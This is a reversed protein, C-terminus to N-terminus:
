DNKIGYESLVTSAKIREMITKKEKPKTLLKFDNGLQLLAQRGNDDVDSKDRSLIAHIKIMNLISSRQNESLKSLVRLEDETLRLQGLTVPKKFWNM